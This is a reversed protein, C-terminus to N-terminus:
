GSAEVDRSVVIIRKQGRWDTWEWKEENSVQQKRSSLLWIVLAALALWQWDKM